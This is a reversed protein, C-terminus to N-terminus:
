ACGAHRGCYTQRTVGTADYEGFARVAKRNMGSPFVHISAGAAQRAAAASPAFPMAARPMHTMEGHLRPASSGAARRRQAAAGPSVHAAVYDNATDRCSSLRCDRDPEGRLARKRDEVLIPKEFRQKRNFRRAIWGLAAREAAPGISIELSRNPCRGVCYDDRPPAM